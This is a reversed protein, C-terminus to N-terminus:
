HHHQGENFKISSVNINELKAVGQTVMIYSGASVGEIIQPELQGPWIIEIKDIKTFSGLGQQIMLPNAGFSGGSNLRSYFNHREGKANSATIKVRAGIASRNSSSGKLKLKIWNNSNGPNVFLANMFNDGDYSGGLVHYIDQDGDNDLDGFAVGHGKQLHGFGGSKTVDYFQKGRGNLFMRNPILARFDPTGTAAYFDPYGDNNLDGFNCGMTYLVKNVNAEKTVDTFTGNKENRYLKPMEATVPIGLYDKAVEGAATEFQRFDFGSVFIDEWGDQNYDFFWCPFSLLPGTTNSFEAVNVFRYDNTPGGNKLLYNNGNILSLYVDPYSDNNYDGWVCGKVFAQISMGKEISVDRFTGDGNNKFLQSPAKNNRSYENGIFLDIWGDNNYDAWSATQTPFRCYLGSEKTVDTFTGNGNNRLLSNPHNGETGLWAGRLILVDVWGDNNYDAQVMNLGSWLGTLGAEETLDDFGGSTNNQFYHLQDDLGYSSVMLDLYSDNNFDDMVVSGSIDNVAIGLSMSIDKFRPFSVESEFVRPDILFQKEIQSPYAGLTMQTINYLWMTQFDPEPTNLLERFIKLASEGGERRLHQGEKEIPIICSYENHNEICNEIEAKRLYAVGLVEKISHMANSPLNLRNNNIYTLISSLRTISLEYEGANLWEIGSKFMLSLLEGPAQTIKIKEDIAMARKRNLHWTEINDQNMAIEKLEEVMELTSAQSITNAKKESNQCSSIILLIAFFISGCHYIGITKKTITNRIM